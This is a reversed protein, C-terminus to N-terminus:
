RPSAVTSRFCNIGLVNGPYSVTNEGKLNQNELWAASLLVNTVALKIHLCSDNDGAKM